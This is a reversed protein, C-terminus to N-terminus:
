DFSLTPSIAMKGPPTKLGHWTCIYWQPCNYLLVQHMVAEPVDGLMYSARSGYECMRLHNIISGWLCTELVTPTFTQLSWVRGNCAALTRQHAFTLHPSWTEPKTPDPSPFSDEQHLPTTSSSGTAPLALPFFKWLSRGRQEAVAKGSPRRLTSSGKYILYLIAPSPPATSPFVQTEGRGGKQM